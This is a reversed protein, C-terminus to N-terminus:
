GGQQYLADRTVAIDTHTEYVARARLAGASQTYEIWRDAIKGDPHSQALQIGADAWALRALQQRLAEPDNEVSHSRTEFVTLRHIELPLFLGGIPLIETEVEQSPYSEGETLPWAFDM